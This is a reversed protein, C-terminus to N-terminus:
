IHYAFPYATSQHLFIVAAATILLLSLLLALVSFTLLNELWFSDLVDVNALQGDESYRTKLILKMGTQPEIDELQVDTLELVQGAHNGDLLRVQAPEVSIVQTVICSDSKRSHLAAGSIILFIVSLFFILLIIPYSKIRLPKEMRYIGSVDNIKM